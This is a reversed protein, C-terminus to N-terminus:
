NISSKRHGVAANVGAAFASLIIGLLVLLLIWSTQVSSISSVYGGFGTNPVGPAAANLVSMAGTGTLGSVKWYQKGDITVIEVNQDAATYRIASFCNLQIENLSSAGPCVIVASDQTAKPVYLVFSNGQSGAAEMLGHVFSKKAVSDIGAIVSSWDRDVTMDVLIEALVRGDNTKLLVVSQNATTGSGNPGIVTGSATTVMLNQPLGTIYTPPHDNPEPTEENSQTNFAFLASGDVQVTGAASVDFSSPLWVEYTTDTGLVTGTDNLYM